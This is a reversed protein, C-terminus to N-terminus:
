DFTLTTTAARKSASRPTAETLPSAVSSSRARPHVKPLPPTAPAPEPEPSSAREACFIVHPASGDAPATIIRRGPEALGIYDCDISDDLYYANHPVRSEPHPTPPSLTPDHNYDWSQDSMISGADPDCESDTETDTESDTDSSDSNSESESSTSVTPTFEPDNGTYPNRALLVRTCRDRRLVLCMDLTAISDYAAGHDLLHSLVDSYDGSSCCRVVFRNDTQFIPLRGTNTDAIVHQLVCKVTKIHGAGVADYLAQYNGYSTDCAGSRNQVSHKYLLKLIATHRHKAAVVYARNIADYIEHPSAALLILNVDRIIGKRTASILLGGLAEPSVTIVLTELLRYTDFTPKSALTRAVKVVEQHTIPYSEPRPQQNLCPM